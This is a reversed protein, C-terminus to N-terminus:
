LLVSMFNGLVDGMKEFVLPHVHFFIYQTVILEDQIIELVM